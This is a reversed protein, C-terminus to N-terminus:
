IASLYKDLRAHDLSAQNLDQSSRVFAGPRGRVASVLTRLDGGTEPALFILVQQADPPVTVTLGKQMCKATWTECPYFWNTPPPNTAGRLFAAVMLYHASQSEPFDAQIWLKDGPALNPVETVALTKGGRTVTVALNPGALDFPAPDARVAEAHVGFALLAFFALLISQRVWSAAAHEFAMQVM